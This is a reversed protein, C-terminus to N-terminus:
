CDYDYITHMEEMEVPVLQWGATYECHDKMLVTIVLKHLPDKEEARVLCVTEPSMSLRGNVANIGLGGLLRLDNDLRRM